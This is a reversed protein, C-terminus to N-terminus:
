VSKEILLHFTYFYFPRVSQYVAVAFSNFPTPLLGRVRKERIDVVSFGIRSLIKSFKGFTYYHMRDIRQEGAEGTYDKDRGLLTILARSWTRPIWNIFPLHFHPDIFGFRSPVSVYAIGGPSLVRFMERLVREPDEVHEIVESCNIFGFSNDPFPLNEGKGDLITLALGEREGKQITEARYAHNVELGVVNSGARSADFIFSGRGTGLDLIPVNLIHPVHGRLHDFHSAM